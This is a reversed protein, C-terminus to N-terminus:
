AFYVPAQPGKTLMGVAALGYGLCWGVLPKQKVDAWRWAILSGAVVLTYLSETEGLWGFQLVLGMTPYAAAAWLAGLRSLFTRGFAYILATTLLLAIVSPLRIAIFDVGGRALAVLAIAWNQVPPRSLFPEGQQRPVIWDGSNIMERAVQGRRPEEGSPLVDS